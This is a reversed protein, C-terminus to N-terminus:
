LVVFLVNHIHCSYKMWAPHWVKIFALKKKEPIDANKAVRFFTGVIDIAAYGQNWLGIVM